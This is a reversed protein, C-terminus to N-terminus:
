LYSVPFNLTTPSRQAAQNTVLIACNYSSMTSIFMSERPKLCVDNSHFVFIYSTPLLLIFSIDNGLIFHVSPFTIVLLSNLLM